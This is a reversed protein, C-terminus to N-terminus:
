NENRGKNHKKNVWDSFISCYAHNQDHSYFVKKRKGHRRMRAITIKQCIQWTKAAIGTWIAVNLDIIIM